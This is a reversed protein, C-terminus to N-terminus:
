VYKFLIKYILFSLLSILIAMTPEFLYISTCFTLWFTLCSNCSIPKPLDKLYHGVGRGKFTVYNLFIYISLFVTSIIIVNQM